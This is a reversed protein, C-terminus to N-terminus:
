YGKGYDYISLLEDNTLPPDFGHDTDVVFRTVPDVLCRNRPHMSDTQIEYTKGRLDFDACLVDEKGPIRDAFQDGVPVLELKTGLRLRGDDLMRRAAAARELDSMKLWRWVVEDNSMESVAM